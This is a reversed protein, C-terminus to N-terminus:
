RSAMGIMEARVDQPAFDAAFFDALRATAPRGDFSEAAAIGHANSDSPKCLAPVCAGTLGGARQQLVATQRM